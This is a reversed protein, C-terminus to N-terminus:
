PPIHLLTTQLAFSKDAGRTCTSAPVEGKAGGSPIAANHAPVRLQVEAEHICQAAAFLVSM